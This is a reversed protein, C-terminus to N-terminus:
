KNPQQNPTSNIGYQRQANARIANVQSQAKAKLREKQKFMELKKNLVTLKANLKQIKKPDAKYKRAIELNAKTKEIAETVRAPNTLHKFAKMAGAYGLRSLQLGLNAAGVTAGLIMAKGVIPAAAAAQMGTAMSAMMSGIMENIPLDGSDDIDSLLIFESIYENINECDLRNASYALRNELIESYKFKSEDIGSLIASLVFQRLIDDNM